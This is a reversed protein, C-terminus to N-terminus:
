MKRLDVRRNKARGEDSSNDAVPKSDGFGKAVLRAAAVGHAGLWSRVADARAQSLKLNADAAGVNDTHGEVQMKWSPNKTLLKAMEALCKESSPQITAKGTDFLVGYISCYGTSNIASEWEEASAAMQQEMEKSRVVTEIYTQGGNNSTQVEVWVGGKHASYVPAENVGAGSYVATYGAAKLASEANRAISLFSVNDGCRYTIIEVEGEVARVKEDEHGTRINASDFDKKDCSEIHCSKMRSLVTSDKCGEADEEQATLPFAALTLVLVAASLRM